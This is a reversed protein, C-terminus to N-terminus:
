GAEIFEGAFEGAEFEVPTIEGPHNMRQAILMRLLKRFVGIKGTWAERPLAELKELDAPTGTAPWFELVGEVAAVERVWYNSDASSTATIDGTVTVGTVFGALRILWHPHQAVTEITSPSLSSKAALAGIIRVGDPPTCNKLQEVLESESGPPRGEVSLWREFVASPIDDRKKPLAEGKSIILAKHLLRKMEEEAPEWSSARLYDLLPFSYKLPLELFARFLRPWDKHLLASDIALRIEDAACERLTKRRGGFFGLCRRDGSRVVSMVHEKVKDSAHEYADRLYQFDDDEKFYEELQRTVFLFLCAQDPSSPRNKTQLCIRAATSSPDNIAARCLADVAARDNLSRLAEEAIPKAKSTELTVAELLLPVVDASSDSALKECAKRQLMPGIIPLNNHLDKKIKQLEVVDM